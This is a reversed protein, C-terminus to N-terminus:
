TEMSSRWSQKVEEVTLSDAARVPKLSEGSDFGFFFRHVAWFGVHFPEPTGPVKVQLSLLKIEGDKCPLPPVDDRTVKGNRLRYLHIGRWEVHRQALNIANLQADLPAHFVPPMRERFAELLRQEVPSLLVGGRVLRHWWSGFQTKVTLLTGTV